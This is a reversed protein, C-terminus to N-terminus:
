SGLSQVTSTVLSYFQARPLNSCCRCVTCPTRLLRCLFMCCVRMRLYFSLICLLPVGILLVCWWSCLPSWLTCCLPCWTVSQETSHLGTWYFYYVSFLTKSFPTMVWKSSEQILAIAILIRTRLFILTLLIIAEVVSIIIVSSLPSM